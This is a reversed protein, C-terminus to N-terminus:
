TKDEKEKKWKLVEEKKVGYYTKTHNFLNEASKIGSFYVDQAKSITPIQLTNHAILVQKILEYFQEIDGATGIEITEIAENGQKFAIQQRNQRRKTKPEIKEAEDEFCEREVNWYPKLDEFHKNLLYVTRVPLKLNRQYIKLFKLLKYQTLKGTLEQCEIYDYKDDSIILWHQRIKEKVVRVTKVQVNTECEDNPTRKFPSKPKNKKTEYIKSRSPATELSPIQQLAQKLKAPTIPLVQYIKLIM